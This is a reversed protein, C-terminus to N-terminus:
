SVSLHRHRRLLFWGIGFALVVSIIIPTLLKIWKEWNNKDEILEINKEIVQNKVEFWDTEGLYYGDLEVMLKYLGPEVYFAYEGSENTLQPNNQGTLEVVSEFDNNKQYLTVKAGKLRLQNGDVLTYIYGFPDIVLSMVLESASNDSYITLIKIIEEGINEPGVFSVEYNEGDNNPQAMYWNSGISVLVQNIQKGEQALISAPINLEAEDGAYIHIGGQDRAFPSILINQGKIKVSIREDSDDSDKVLTTPEKGGLLEQIVETEVSESGQFPVDDLSSSDEAAESSSSSGSEDSSDDGNDDEDSSNDSEDDEDHSDASIQASTIAGSSFNNFNDFAFVTYYYRTGVLRGTDTYTTQAGTYVLEGDSLSTPYGTTKRMVKVGQFDNSPNSWSLVIKDPSSSTAQLNSVNAPGTGDIKILFERNSVAQGNTPIDQISLIHNDSDDSFSDAVSQINIEQGASSSSLWTNASDDSLQVSYSGDPPYQDTTGEYVVKLGSWAISEGARVTDGSSLTGRHEGVVLLTGVFDLDNEYAYSGQSSWNSEDLQTDIVKAQLSVDSSETWNWKYTINWTITVSNADPSGVERDYTLSSIYDGGSSVTPSVDNATNGNTAFAEISDGSPNNIKLYMKDIEDVSDQDSYVVSYQYSKGAYIHEGGSIEMVEPVNNDSYSEGGTNVLDSVVWYLHGNVSEISVNDDAETLTMVDPCESNIEEFTDAEPCIFVMSDSPKKPVYLKFDPYGVDYGDINEFGGDIHFFAKKSDLNSSGAVNNFDRVGNFFLNFKAIRQDSVNDYIGVDAIGAIANEPQKLSTKWDSSRVSELSESLNVIYGPSAQNIVISGDGGNNAGVGGSASNAINIPTGTWNNSESFYIAVLGGSGGGGRPADNTPVSGGHASISGAGSFLRSILYISGGSGGGGHECTANSGNATLTGNIVLEGDTSIKIAGGGAGGNCQHTGPGIGYGGGSGLTVPTFQNGYYTGGPRSGSGGNSAHGAGGGASNGGGYSTSRGPGDGDSDSNTGGRYGQGDANISSSAPLIVDNHLNLLVGTGNTNDSYSSLLTIDVNEGIVTNRNVTFIYYEANQASFTVDGNITLDRIEWSSLNEPYWINNDSPIIIDNHLTNNLFVIGAKGPNDGVGTNASTTGSFVLNDETYYIAVRGGGGDGGQYTSTYATTGGNATIQQSGTISGTTINISGGAGSGGHHCSSPNGDASISGNVALEGSVNLVIAGGGAGGNCQHTGPGIGYGGGSGLDQPNNFSGYAKGGAKQDGNGGDGGHAGGGAGQDGGTRGIGPGPGYGNVRSNIGGGYGKGKVNIKGNVFLSGASVDIKIRAVPTDSNNITHTIESGEYVVIDGSSVILPGDSVADYNFNLITKQGSENGIVLSGIETSENLNVTIVGAIIVSDSSTPIGGNCNSWNGAEEWNTSVGGIWQCSAAAVKMKNVLTGLLFLLLFGSFLKFLM